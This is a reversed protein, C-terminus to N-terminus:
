QSQFYHKINKIEELHINCHKISISNNSYIFSQSRSAAGSLGPIEILNLKNNTLDSKTLFLIKDTIKMLSDEISIKIPNNSINVFAVNGVITVNSYYLDNKTWITLYELDNITELSSMYYNKM